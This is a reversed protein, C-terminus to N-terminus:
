RSGGAWWVAESYVYQGTGFASKVEPNNTTDDNGYPFRLPFKNPNKLTIFNEGLAKLRRIDNYCEISEGSAGFFSLYKQNMTEKLPNATLLPKVETEFYSIAEEETIADTTEELGGDDVVTPAKMAATVSRETNEIAAIVANKIVTEAETNKNLRYLAEAKLFLLEHYSMLLTPAIQSYVFVSTNYFYQKEENEGNPAMLFNEDSSDTIQVWDADIFVRRLRPDNREILKESISKSAALGDRSWQFDFTPNLNSADYIAYAAEDDASQFSKDTYEIVKELTSQVNTSRKLLHMTYRAKLGYAFKLWKAKSGGYLLDYTGLTGTAHADTGQLDTIADDLYNMIGTYIEEQTDIKPNMYIPAGTKSPLAAQSWPADGFLDTILASNYAALVEAVGKTIKNGEQSEGDSCKDIVLRANRLARYMSRWTNNATSASSPEGERHEARYMQNHTGVEHEVYTSAYTNIDGGANSFATSTIVDGIIFKASVNQTHNVDKNIDDMADESCSLVFASIIATVLFGRTINIYKKM